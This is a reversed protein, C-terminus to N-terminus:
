NNRCIIKKIEKKQTLLLLLSIIFCPIYTTEYHTLSVLESPNTKDYYINVVDNLKSNSIEDNLVRIMVEYVQGDVTYEVVPRAYGLENATYSVITAKTKGVDINAMFNFVFSFLGFVFIFVSIGIILKPFYNKGQKKKELLYITLELVITIALLLLFLFMAGLSIFVEGVYTLGPMIGYGPLSDYYLMFITSFIIALVECVFLIGWKLKSKLCRVLAILLLIFILAYVVLLIYYM